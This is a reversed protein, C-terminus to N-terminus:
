LFVSPVLPDKRQTEGHIWFGKDEFVAGPKATTPRHKPPSTIARLVTAARGDGLAEKQKSNGGLNFQADGFSVPVRALSDLSCARLRAESDGYM